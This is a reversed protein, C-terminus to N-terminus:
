CLLEWKNLYPTLDSKMVRKEEKWQKTIAPVEGSPVVFVDPSVGLDEFKNNYIVFILFHNAKPVVNNVVLSSYGRVAKVDISIAKENELVVRIDIAKKNGQSVYAEVGRRYLQSLIFYEAAIGTNFSNARKKQESM